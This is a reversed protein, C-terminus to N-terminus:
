EKKVVFIQLFYAEKKTLSTLDPKSKKDPVAPEPHSDPNPCTDPDAVLGM